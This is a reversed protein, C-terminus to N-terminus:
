DRLEKAFFATVLNIADAWAVPDGGTTAGRGTPSTVNHREAVYRLPASSDFSHRAGPYVKIEVPLGDARAREALAQCPAAPTLHDREGIEMSIGSAAGTVVAVKDKL